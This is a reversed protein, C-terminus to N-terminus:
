QLCNRLLIAERNCVAVDDPKLAAPVHGVRSQYAESSSTATGSNMGFRNRVKTIWLGLSPGKFCCNEFGLGTSAKDTIAVGIRRINRVKDMAGLHADSFRAGDI